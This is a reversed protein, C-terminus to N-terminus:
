RHKGSPFSAPYTLTPRRKSAIDSNSTDSKSDDYKKDGHRM